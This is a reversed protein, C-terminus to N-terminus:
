LKEVVLYIRSDGLTFKRKRPTSYLGKIQMGAISFMEELENLTFIYDVGKVIEIQGNASIITQETEIRSPHFLFKNELICKYDGSYHWDYEKFYRIAIEAIMWSNIILVGEKKLLSSIKKLLALADKRDFFAFSNGMCIVCDYVNDVNMQITDSEIASVSLNESLSINRIEEIYDPLNDVATVNCNRRALELTHRGYGCMIDLVKDGSALQAQEMIFDCEAETLGTPIITRWVEKYMGDFFNNNINQKAPM